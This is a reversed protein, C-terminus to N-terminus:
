KRDNIKGGIEGGHVNIVRDVSRVNEETSVDLYGEFRKAEKWVEGVCSVEALLIVM